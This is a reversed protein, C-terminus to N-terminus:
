GSAPARQGLVGRIAQRRSAVVLDRRPQECPPRNMIRDRKLHRGACAPRVTASGPREIGHHRGGAPRRVISRRRRADRRASRPGRIRDTRARRRQEVEPRHQGPLRQLLVITRATSLPDDAPGTHALERAIQWATSATITDAIQRGAPGRAPRRARTPPPTRAHRRRTRCCVQPASDGPLRDEAPPRSRQRGIACRANGGSLVV